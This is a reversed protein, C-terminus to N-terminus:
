YTDIIHPETFKEWDVSPWFMLPHQDPNDVRCMLDENVTLHIPDGCHGCEADIEFSLRENRLRGQVFRTAM